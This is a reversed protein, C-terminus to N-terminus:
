EPTRYQSQIEKTRTKTLEARCDFIVTPEMSGGGVQLAGVTECHLNRYQLWAGQAVRVRQQDDRTLRDQTAQYVSNMEQEAKKLEIAYCANMVDQTKADGCHGLLKNGAEKAEPTNMFVDWAHTPKAQQQGFISSNCVCLGVLLFARYLKRHGM